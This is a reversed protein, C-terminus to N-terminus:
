LLVDLEKYFARTEDLDMKGGWSMLVHREDPPLVLIGNSEFGHREYFRIRRLRMEIDGEEPPEVDAFIRKGPHESKLKELVQSGYGGGRFEPDVSMYLLCFAIDADVTYIFGKYGGDDIVYFGSDYGTYHLLKNFDYRDIRSFSSMYLEEIRKIESQEPPRLVITM